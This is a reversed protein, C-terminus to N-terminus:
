QSYAAVIELLRSFPGTEYYSDRLYYNVIFQFEWDEKLLRELAQREARWEGRPVDREVIFLNLATPVEEDFFHQRMGKRAESDNILLSSQQLAQYLYEIVWREPSQVRPDRLHEVCLSQALKSLEVFEDKREHRLWVALLRRIVDDKLLRGEYNLLYAGTLKDALTIGDLGLERQEAIHNLIRYDLYRFVSLMTMIDKLEGLTDSTDAVYHNIIQNWDDDGFTEEFTDPSVPAEKYSATIDALCGPHGGTLYFFHASMQLVTEEDSESLYENISNRIVDYKFTSLCRIQWPGILEPNVRSALNRGAIFVRFRNHEKTFVKLTRLTAHIQPILRTQLEEVLSLPVNPEIDFLLALGENMKQWHKKVVGGLSQGPSLKRQRQELYPTVLSFINAIAEAIDSLQDSRNILVYVAQWNRECYYEGIKELLTTKGYGIPADLVIYAPALSSKILDIEDERNTFPFKTGHSSPGIHILRARAYCPREQTQTVVESRPESKSLILETNAIKSQIEAIKSELNEAQRSLRKRDAESLSQSIQEIVAAYDEELGELHEEWISLQSSKSKTV